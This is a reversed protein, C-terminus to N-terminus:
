ECVYIIKSGSDEDGDVTPGTLVSNDSIRNQVPGQVGLYTMLKDDSVLKNETLDKFQQNLTRICLGDYPGIKYQVDLQSVTRETQKIFKSEPTTERPTNEDITQNEFTELRIVNKVEKM